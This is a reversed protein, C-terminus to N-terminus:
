RAPHLARNPINGAHRASHPWVQGNPLYATGPRRDFAMTEGGRNTTVKEASPILTRMAQHIVTM